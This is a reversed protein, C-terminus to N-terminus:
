RMKLIAKLKKRSIVDDYEPSNETHNNPVSEESGEKTEVTIRDPTSEDTKIKVPSQRNKCSIFLSALLFVIITKKM